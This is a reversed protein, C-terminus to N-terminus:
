KLMQVQARACYFAVRCGNCSPDGDLFYSFCEQTEAISKITEEQVTRDQEQFVTDKLPLPIEGSKIEVAQITEDVSLKRMTLGLGTTNTFTVTPKQPTPLGTGTVPKNVAPTPLTVPTGPSNTKVGGLIKNEIYNVIEACDARDQTPVVRYLNQGQARQLYGISTLRAVASSFLNVYEPQDQYHWSSRNLAIAVDKRIIKMSTPATYGSCVSRILTAMEETMPNTKRSM